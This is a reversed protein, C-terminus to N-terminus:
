RIKWQETNKGSFWFRLYSITRIVSLGSPLLGFGLIKTKPTRGLAYFEYLVDPGTIVYDIYVQHVAAFGDEILFYDSTWEQYSEPTTCRLNATLNSALNESFTLTIPSATTLALALLLALSLM